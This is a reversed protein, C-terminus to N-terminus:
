KGVGEFQKLAFKKSQVFDRIKKYRFDRSYLRNGDVDRADQMKRDLVHLESCTLM